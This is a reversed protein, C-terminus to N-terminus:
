AVGIQKKLRELDKRWAEAERRAMDREIELVTSWTKLEAIQGLLFDIQKGQETVKQRLDRLDFFDTTHQQRNLAMVIGGGAIIVAIVAMLEPAIM